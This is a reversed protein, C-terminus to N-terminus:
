PITVALNFFVSRGPNRWYLPANGYSQNGAFNSIAQNNFLNGIKLSPTIERFISGANRIRWGLALDATVNGNIQYQNAFQTNGSANTTSDM